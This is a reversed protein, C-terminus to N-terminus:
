LNLHIFLTAYGGGYGLSVLLFLLDTVWGGSRGGAEPRGAGKQLGTASARGESGECSEWKWFRMCM